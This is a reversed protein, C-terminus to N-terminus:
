LTARLRQLLSVEATGGEGGRIFLSKLTMNARGFSARSVVMFYNSAVTVLKKAVDGHGAMGQQQLFIDVSGYGEQGRGEILTEATAEDLTIKGVARLVELSCTNINILVNRSPLTSIHPALIKVTKRDFGEIRLLESQDSLLTNASRYAPTKDLYENDEAGSVGTTTQDADIWDVVADALSADLELVQLLRVFVGYWVSTKGDQLNNLNFRGQQDVAVTLLQAGEVKVPSGLKNWSELLHDTKSERLDRQLIKRGWGESSLLLQFAQQTDRINGFRRMALHEDGVLYASLTVLLTLIFLVTILAVGRQRVM